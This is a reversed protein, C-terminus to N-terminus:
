PKRVPMRKSKAKKFVKLQRHFKQPVIKRVKERDLEVKNNFKEKITWKQEERDAQDAVKIRKGIKKKKEIEKKVAIKRRCIPSYRTMKVEETKQNIKSNYAQLQPIDLIIDTRELDYVDMRMREIHSKYYINVQRELLFDQRQNKYSQVGKGECEGCDVYIAVVKKTIWERDLLLAGEPPISQKDCYKQVKEYTPDVPRKEQQTKYPRAIYMEKEKRGRRREVEINPCDWKHHEVRQCRFCKVGKEERKQQRM